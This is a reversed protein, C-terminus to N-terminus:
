MGGLALRRVKRYADLLEPPSGQWIRRQMGVAIMLRAVLVKWAPYHKRYLQLRSGWLNIISQGRVQGTSKGSLHTVHAAPVGRV